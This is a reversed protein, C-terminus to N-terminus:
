ADLFKEYLQNRPDGEFGSKSLSDLKGRGIRSFGQCPPGGILIDPPSVSIQQLEIEGLDFQPGALVLPPESRQLISLNRRFTEGAIEDIDTASMIRCGAAQFGLSLGGAGCFLDVVQLTM